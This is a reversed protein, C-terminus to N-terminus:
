CISILHYLRRMVYYTTALCHQVPELLGALAARERSSLTVFEGLRGPADSPSDIPPPLDEDM